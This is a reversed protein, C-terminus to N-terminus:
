YLSPGSVFLREASLAIFSVYVTKGETVRVRRTKLQGDIRTHIIYEGAPVDGMVFSERWVKDSAIHKGPLGTYTWAERWYRDPRQVPHFTVLTGPVAQGDKEVRGVITGHGPLSDLWLEPNRTHSLANEGVRIELHLHPGIAIGTSGILGVIEGRRVQQGVHVLVQSLHGYLVYIPQSQDIAPQLRLIVLTGYYDLHPGVLTYNDSGAVVVVADAVALVPTGVPYVFEVGHHPPYRGQGTSGYPYFRDPRADATDGIPRILHAHESTGPSIATPTPLAWDSGPDAGTSPPIAWVGLSGLLWLAITCSLYPRLGSKVYRPKM